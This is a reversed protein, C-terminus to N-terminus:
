EDATGWLAAARENDLALSELAKVDANVLNRNIEHIGDSLQKHAAYQLAEVQQELRARQEPSPSARLRKILPDVQRNYPRSVKERLFGFAYGAKVEALLRKHNSTLGDAFVAILIAVAIPQHFEPVYGTAVVLGGGAAVGKLLYAGGRRLYGIRRGRSEGRFVTKYLSDLEKEILTRGAGM